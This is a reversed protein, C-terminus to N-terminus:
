GPIQHARVVFRDPAPGVFYFPYCTILTLTPQMGPKLVQVHRPSVIRIWDVRYRRSGQVTTLRIEDNPHIRRLPRFFSDRHAALAVNGQEGPLATGPIHGVGLRLIGQDSGELVMARLGIRPIELRGLSEGRHLPPWVISRGTSATSHARALRAGDRMQVIKSQLLESICWVLCVAGLFILLNACWVRLTCLESRIRAPVIIQYSM